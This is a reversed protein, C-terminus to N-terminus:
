RAWWSTPDARRAAALRESVDDPSPLDDLASGLDAAHSDLETLRERLSDGREALRLAAWSSELDDREVRMRSLPAATEPNFPDFAKLREYLANAEGVNALQTADLQDGPIGAVARKAEAIVPPALGQEIWAELEAMSPRTRYPAFRVVHGVARLHDALEPAALRSQVEARLWGPATDSLWSAAPPPTWAAGAPLGPDAYVGVSRGSGEVLVTAAGHRLRIAFPGQQLNFCARDAIVTPEGLVVWVVDDAPMLVLWPAHDAWEIPYDKFVLSTPGPDHPQLLTAALTAAAPYGAASLGHADSPGAAPLDRRPALPVVAGEPLGFLAHLPPQKPTM